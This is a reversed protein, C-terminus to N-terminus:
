QVSKSAINFLTDTITKILSNISRIDNKNIKTGKSLLQNLDLFNKELAAAKDPPMQKTLKKSKNQLQSVDEKIKTVLNIDITANQQAM